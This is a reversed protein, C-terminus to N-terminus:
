HAARRWGKLVRGAQALSIADPQGAPAALELLPRFRELTASMTEVHGLIHLLVARDSLQTEM